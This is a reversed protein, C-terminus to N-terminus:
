ERFLAASATFLPDDPRLEAARALDEVVTPDDPNALWNGWARLFYAEALQPRVALAPEVTRTIWGALTPEWGEAMTGSVLASPQGFIEGATYGRMVDVAAPYDGYFLRALLPYPYDPAAAADAQAKRAEGNLRILIANWGFIGEPAAGAIMADEVALLADKWLGANASRIAEDNREALAAPATEPLSELKVLSLASGDWRRVSFYPFRVGCAYCFVYPETENVIVDDVGDGDLDRIRCVGPSPNFASYADTITAGDFTLINCTGSHAGVGGEVHLWVRSPEINIQQVGQADVYDAGFLPQEGGGDDVFTYRTVEYLAGGVEEYIALVHPTDPDYSRLGTTHALWYQKGTADLVPFAVTEDFAYDTAARVADLDLSQELLAAAATAVEGNAADESPSGGAVAAPAQGWRVAYGTPAVAVNAPLTQPTAGNAPVWTLTGHAGGEEYVFDAVIVVGSDDDRWLVPGEVNFVSKSLAEMAGGPEDVAYFGYGDSDDMNALDAIPLALVWLAGGATVHPARVMTLPEGSGTGSDPGSRIIATVMGTTADVWSLGASGYAIANSGIYFAQGDDTWTADGTLTTNPESAALEVLSGTELDLLALGGGEPYYAFEVLLRKGDPSWSYPWFFRVPEKFWNPDNLDPYPSSELLTRYETSPGSAMLNVGGLGFVIEKGDPSFRPAMILTTITGESSQPDIAQGTVKVVRNDGNADSQILRNGAVYVLSGDVPSVDFATVPADENTVTSTTVGDAELRVIQRTEHEVYYLPAPLRPAAAATTVGTPTSPGTATPFDGQVPTAPQIAIGCAALLSVSLLATLATVIRKYM